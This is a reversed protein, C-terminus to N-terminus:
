VGEARLAVVCRGLTPVAGRTVPVSDATTQPGL